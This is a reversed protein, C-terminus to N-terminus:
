GTGPTATRQLPLAFGFATGSPRGDAAWFRGGHAHIISRCVALPMGGEAQLVHGPAIQLPLERNTNGLDCIRIAVESGEQRSAISLSGTREGAGMGDCVRRALHLIVQQIQIRNAPVRPLGPQLDTVPTAGANRLDEAVLAIAEAVLENLDLPDSRAPAPRFLARIRVVHDAADHAYRGIRDGHQLAEAIRPPEMTLAERFAMADALLCQLPATIEGSIGAALESVTALEMARALRAHARALQAEGARKEEIDTLLGYWRVIVGAPDRLPAARFRFRRYVGDHRRLRQEFAFPQGSGLGRAVADATHQLDEPHVHDSQRWQQLESLGVRFYELLQRNVFEVEGQPTVTFLLGPASDITDRFNLESDRLTQEARRREEIETSTGYWRLVRGAEDRVPRAQALFWVWCGQASRLRVETEVPQGSGIAARWSRSLQEREDPHTAAIWGWDLADRESLGTFELWPRNFYDIAGDPRATWALVPLADVIARARAHEGPPIGPQEAHHRPTQAM